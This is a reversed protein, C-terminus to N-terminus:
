QPLESGLLRGLTQMARLWLRRASDPSLNLQGAIQNFSQNELYRCRVVQKQIPELREIANLLRTLQERAVAESAPGPSDSVMEHCAVNGTVQSSVARQRSACRRSEDIIRHRLIVVLWERLETDTSGRFRAQDRIALMLAQQVVDSVNIQTRILRGM